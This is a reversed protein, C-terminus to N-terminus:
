FRWDQISAQMEQVTIRVMGQPAQRSYGNETKGTPNKPPNPYLGYEIIPAYPKNTSIFLTDGFKVRLNGSEDGDFTTPMGNISVTWSGRLDGTDVPSKERIRETTDIALKRIVQDANREVKNIFKSIDASFKGM